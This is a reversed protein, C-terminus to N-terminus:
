FDFEDLWYFWPSSLLMRPEPNLSTFHKNYLKDNFVFHICWMLFIDRKVFYVVIPMWHHFRGCIEMCQGWYIGTLSFFVIRHSSYGPICDIKVGASPISWSHIIDKSTALIQLRTDVPMAVAKDAQIRIMNSVGKRFPEYQSIPIAKLLPVEDADCITPRVFRSFLLSSQCDLFDNLIGVRSNYTSDFFTWSLSFSNLFFYRLFDRKIFVDLFRTTTNVQNTALSLDGFHLFSRFGTWNILYNILPSWNLFFFSSDFFNSSELLFNLSNIRNM